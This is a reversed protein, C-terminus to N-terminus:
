PCKYGDLIYAFDLETSVGLIRMALTTLPYVKLVSKVIVIDSSAVPLEQGLEIIRSDSKNCLEYSYDISYRSLERGLIHAYMASFKVNKDGIAIVRRFGARRVIDIIVELAKLALEEEGRRIKSGRIDRALCDDGLFIPEGKMAAVITIMVNFLDLVLTSSSCETASCCLKSRITQADRGSHVSRYLASRLKSDILYRACIIDLVSQPYGRDLLYRYDKAAEILKIKEADTLM